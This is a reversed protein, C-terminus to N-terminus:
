KVIFRLFGLFLDEANLYNKMHKPPLKLREGPSSLDFNSSLDTPHVHTYKVGIRIAFTTLFGAELTSSFILVM